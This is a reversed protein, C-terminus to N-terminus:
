EQGGRLRTRLEKLEEIRREPLARKLTDRLAHSALLPAIRMTTLPMRPRPPVLVTWAVPDNGDAFRLKYAQQGLGLDLVGRRGDALAAEIVGLIGLQSPRFRAFREDWGGNVYLIADGAVLFLQACVPEGDVELLRLLFRGDDVLAAGAQELMPALRAGFGVLNSRGRGEWRQTHLRVFSAIDRELTDRTATRESGGAAAFQRQARRMQSRFNGSRTAMWDDFSRERFTVRPCGFVSYQRLAPRVSGPWNERLAVPWPSDVPAAELAVVDPRPVAGILAAGVAAAVVSERGALALPTLGANLEIGPLRYDARWRRAGPDVFFPAIGIVESGDRVAVVRARMAPRRLHQWWAVVWAPSMQPRGAAVALRDWPAYLAELAPLEDAIEFDICSEM